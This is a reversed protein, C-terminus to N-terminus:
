CADFASQTHLYPVSPATRSGPPASEEGPLAAARASVPARAASGPACSRVWMGQNPNISPKCGRHPRKAGRTPPRASGLGDCVRAACLPASPRSGGSAVVGSLHFMDRVDIQTSARATPAHMYAFPPGTTFRGSVSVGVKPTCRTGAPRALAEFASVFIGGPARAAIASTPPLVGRGPPPGSV